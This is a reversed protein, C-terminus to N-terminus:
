RSSSHAPRVDPVSSSVQLEPIPWTLRDNGTGVVAVSAGTGGATLDLVRAWEPLGVAASQGATLSVSRERVREGAADSLRWTVEGDDAAGTLVMEKAGDFLVTAGREVLASTGVAHTLDGDALTRLTGLVPESSQLVLARAGRAPRSVLLDGVDLTRVAGAPVRLDEAGAPAFESEDTALELRVRAENESPNAVVLIREGGRPGLGTLHLRTGPEAQPALWDSSDAGLGLEDIRDLVFVGLRGRGVEVRLTLEDRTPVTTALDLRTTSNGPVTVGRLRPADVPGDPGHVFVDAVAPGSDPNVLEVVSSHEPAAGVGVYWQLPAPRVCATGARGAVRGAVLGPALEGAARVTVAGRAPVEPSGELDVDSSRTGRRVVVEGSEGDANGLRVAGSRGGSSPCVVDSRELAVTEPARDGPEVDVPRVLALAGVTLLPILVSAVTLADPRRRARLDARRGTRTRDRSM